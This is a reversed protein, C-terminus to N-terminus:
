KDLGEYERIIRLIGCREDLGCLELYNIDVEPARKRVAEISDMAYGGVACFLGIVSSKFRELHSGAVSEWDFGAFTVVGGCAASMDVFLYDPSQKLDSAEYLANFFRLKYPPIKKERLADAFYRKFKPHMDKDDEVVWITIPKKKAKPM